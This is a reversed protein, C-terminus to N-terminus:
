SKFHSPSSVANAEIGSRFARSGINSTYYSLIIIMMVILTTSGIYSTGDEKRPATRPHEDRVAPFPASYMVKSCVENPIGSANDM